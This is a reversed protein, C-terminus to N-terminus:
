TKEREQHRFGMQVFYKQEYADCIESGFTIIKMHFNTEVIARVNGRESIHYKSSILILDRRLYRVDVM